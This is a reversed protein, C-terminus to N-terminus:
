VSNRIRSLTVPSMGLYSAVHIHSVQNTLEPYVKVFQKYKDKSSAQLIIHDRQLLREKETTKIKNVLATLYKHEQLFTAILRTEFAILTTPTLSQLNYISCHNETRRSNLTIFNGAGFFGNTHENGQDDVIFSRIVGSAVFYEKRTIHGGYVVIEDKSFLNTQAIALLKTWTEDSINVCASIYNRLNQM